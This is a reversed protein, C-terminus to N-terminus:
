YDIENLHFILIKSKWTKVKKHKQLHSGIAAVYKILSSLGLYRLKSDKNSEFKHLMEANQPSLIQM